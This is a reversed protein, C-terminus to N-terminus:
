AVQPRHYPDEIVRRTIQSVNAAGVMVMAAQLEGRMTNLFLSVGQRGGGHAARVLHRGVMVADAGLAVYKLVDDGYRVCGDAFIVLKGKVKDAIAPLVEATGPTDDLVRGGHNSVVIGAAGADLALQAEDVSMIGKVLIPIRTARVLERLKEVTKPEAMMDRTNNQYRGASDTDVTIAWVKAAEAMRIVEILAPNPRPKIGAIGAGGHRGIVNLRAQMMAMPERQSDGVCGVTGADLCGGMIADFYADETMKGGFNSKIGGIPAAVAPLSLKRGFIVTSTDPKYDQNSAGHVTRMIPRTRRLAIFNNKFSTGSGIGGFGPFEGACAVGDCQPCVRCLPYLVERAKAYVDKMKPAVAPLSASPSTQASAATPVAAQALLAGAAGLTSLRLFDRRQEGDKHSAAAGPNTSIHDM